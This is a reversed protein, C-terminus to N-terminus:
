MLLLFECVFVCSRAFIPPYYGFFHFFSPLTAYILAFQASNKTLIAKSFFCLIFDYMSSRSNRCDECSSRSNRCKAQVKM